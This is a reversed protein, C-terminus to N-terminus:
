LFLSLAMGAGIFAIIAASILELIGSIKEVEESFLYHLGQLIKGRGLVVAIGIVAVLLFMGASLGLVAVVGALTIDNAISFTMLFITVPCPVMGAMMGMMAPSSYKAMSCDHSCHDHHHKHHGMEHFFLFLGMGMILLGSIGVLFGRIELKFYEEISGVMTAILFSVAFSVIAHVTAMVGALILASSVKEEHNLFYTTIIAKGHGPAASHLFGYFMAVGFFTTLTAPTISSTFVSLSQRMVSDYHKIVPLIVTMFFQKGYYVCLLVAITILVIYLANRQLKNLLKKM